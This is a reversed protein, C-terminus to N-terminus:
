KPPIKLYQLAFKAIDGFAPGAVTAGYGGGAPEDAVVVIVLKPNNAPAFGAISAVNRNEVYEGLKTDFVNSTGTKGALQYGPVKVASATGGAEFVGALMGRLQQAVDPRLVRKGAPRAVRQGGITRVLSPHRLMGGNAITAYLNAIQMPTVLQGQGIPLNGMTSGSYNELKPLLGQEEGPWGLGTTSGFGLKRMWGDFRKSGLKQGIQITGVNSSQALIQGPTMVETGHGHSDKIVRDAVQISYPVTFQSTPTVTHDQLAGGVAVAKFTSGPEYTFGTASNAKAWEPSEGPQNPDVRPWNAMSLIEGDPRMVIATAKKPRYTQGLQQLAEEAVAQIRTDLTLSVNKGPVMKRETVTRLPSGTQSRTELEKGNTGRLSKDYGIELGALAKDDDGYAGLLQGALAGGPYIRRNRPEFTLAALSVNMKLARDRLAQVKRDPVSRALRVYGANATLKKLVEDEPLDLESAVLDALQQPRQAPKLTLQETVVRPSVAVDDAPESVALPAGYRDQIEGRAALIERPTNQQGRAAATLTDAKALAFWVSRGGAVVLLFMAISFLVRLRRDAYM